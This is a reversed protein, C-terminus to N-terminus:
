LASFDLRFIPGKIISWYSRKIQYFKEDGLKGGPFDPRMERERIQNSACFHSRTAVRRTPTARRRGSLSPTRSTASSVLIRSPSCSSLFTARPRRASAWARPRPSARRALGTDVPGPEAQEACWCQYIIERFWFEIGKGSPAKEHQMQAAARAVALNYVNQCGCVRTIVSM